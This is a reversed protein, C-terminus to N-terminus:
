RFNLAETVADFSAVAAACPVGVTLMATAWEAKSVQSYAPDIPIPSNYLYAPSHKHVYNYYWTYIYIYIYM